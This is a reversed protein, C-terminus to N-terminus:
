EHQNQTFYDIRNQIGNIISRLIRELEQDCERFTNPGKRYDGLVARGISGIVGGRSSSDNLQRIRKNVRQLDKLLKGSDFSGMFSYLEKHNSFKSNLNTLDKEFNNLTMLIGVFQEGPYSSNPDCKSILNKFYNLIGVYIKGIESDSLITGDLEKVLHTLFLMFLIQSFAYLNIGQSKGIHEITSFSEERLKSANDKNSLLIHNILLSFSSLTNENISFNILITTQKNYLYFNIVSDIYEGRIGFNKFEDSFIIKPDKKKRIIFIKISNKTYFTIRKRFWYHSYTSFL